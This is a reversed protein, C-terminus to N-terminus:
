VIPNTYGSIDSDFVSGASVTAVNQYDGITTEGATSINLKNLKFSDNSGGTYASIVITDGKLNGSNFDAWRDSGHNVFNDEKVFSSLLSNNLASIDTGNRDGIWISIDSDSEVYKLLAKDVTVDQDFEFLLYDLSGGNDVRHSSGGEYTNTVGLGGGYLGLYGSRWDGGNKNSSFASVDVSIGGQTFTRINGNAGTTYSNGSFVFVADTSATTVSLDQAAETASTYTWTEGASLIGDSNVDSSAVLTPTFDDGTHGATGNDDTVIVQNATFAVNGTNSVTYTFTVNAGAAIEPLNNLDTVDIGNVFKEIDIGPNQPEPNVTPNTYGSQDQDSVSGATVTGINIYNGITTEGPVSIDLKRLKFADDLDNGDTRAAIVLTDGTLNGANFDAWRDSSGGNNNEKTFSNLIDSNLLSIDTGNRDGIWVSIDSDGSVYDLFAKDVIVDQDFEFLVYDLSGGNDVRHLSGDENRNTVGLGGGYAGLYATKWDGGSQNSSFASVDVSVGDQTFTRVNGYSGTTYSNGTLNFLIDQSSTSTILNQAIGTQQYTWMEGPALINDGDGQNIINTITGELDDTVVIDSKAFAVNGTNTVEYTWTVTQGAAIEPALDPTDADVGNTFKEIDIGPNQPEPNVYNAADEDSVNGATVTGINTYLGTETTTEISDFDLSSVSGSGTFKVKLEVVDTDNITLTQFSNDGVGPIHTITENGNADTTYVKGGNEEIDVFSLSNINVANDFTFIITGGGANDDPDSSDGDESIILINGQATTNNPGYGPTRLDHDGGTPNASDFIMAQNSGGTASITVGLSAYENDIVTGAAFGEFDIVHNTTTTTSASLDEAAVTKTYNWTEGSDLQNNQNADGTNFGNLLVQDPTFDDSTDGPTGNDDAVIVENAAFSVNGTNTVQYTFVANDGPAIEVAEAATDADAGNVFKEIDIGPNLQILGADITLNNEGSALTVIQSEGTAIDADSDVGDDSGANQQTFNFGAPQSFTVQYEEGPNLNTFQYNGNADTTTTETTDDGTGIVGDAGGGTLTVQVGSVGTEGADQVGNANNDLWVRDGLSATRILGADLTDNFEGSTLTVTQTLGGVADSDTADDGINAKTFDYGAPPVFQVQYDGPILGTFEYGGNADTTTTAVVDGNSDLLNVTVGGIGPEGADQTGDGDSDEFVFDGLSAPQYIGADITPNNEGSALTVIQSEGTAIDADSDVGDDSGANQQTFNFGAPQSFTVQYEEGPNLNTFQYNGNADTTTTETTDDGTGIVGDAGGGTLTVQVGSVGTEGADQVGNANNDLWVRDGLSATRILGADLTDNFEGSTLTVTQTLGGVADSDTADDGINAKTFDYGAPPVFQVQYDGPILGTFEYGGNADTTTTAVVDGNTDLLNVTVGGIGTEGADQTGDGDSDEFVFNGLSAPQYLSTLEVAAITIQGDPIGDTPINDPVIIVAIKDGVQPIFDGHQDAQTVIEQVHTTSFGGYMDKWISQRTASIYDDASISKDDVLVWIAAQIDFASYGQDLFNQQNNILWNVKGLDQPNTTFAGLGLNDNLIDTDYSSYVSATFEGRTRETFTGGSVSPLRVGTDNTDGDGNYDISTSLSTEYDICYTDFSGTLTGDTPDTIKIDFFSPNGLAIELNPDQPGGNSINRQIAKVTVQRRLISSLGQITSLTQTIDTM